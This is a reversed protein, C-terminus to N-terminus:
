AASRATKRAARVEFTVDRFDIEGGCESCTVVPKLPHGDAKHRLLLPPGEPSVYHADGWQLLMLLIPYYDIGKETLLYEYRVPAESYPRPRVIGRAALWGLRESLVNTAIATDERIEDFRRLGTFISRLILGIWRDGTVQAAEDLLATEASRGAALSRTQRRRSYTPQMWGVGPGQEWAIDRASVLDGCDACSPEPEFTKGCTEHRLVLDIKGEGSAWRRDWRMMMLAAWYLDLGKPALRYRFRNTTGEVPVKKVVEAAILRKLRDSLLAKLLGTRERIQDFRDAGLWLSELILLTATDGLVELARWISCTRILKERAKTPM